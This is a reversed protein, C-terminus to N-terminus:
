AHNTVEIFVDELTVKRPTYELVKINEEVLLQLIDHSSTDANIECLLGEETQRINNKIAKKSLLEYVVETPQETAILVDNDYYREKISSISDQLVLKGQELIGIHDCVKEVDELIHTSYFVTKKGKLKLIINMVDKRGIPDLASTPEDMIIIDPDHVLAQAIALRQKMGRSYASIRKSRDHLDVFDLVEDVRQKIQDAPVDNMECSYKVYEEANMYGPFVPVDPVYGIHTKYTPDSFSVTHGQITMTGETKHILSLLLNITTTKGAGNRGIFGYVDGRKVVLDLHDLALKEGYKKTLGETQIASM